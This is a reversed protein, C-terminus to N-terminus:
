KIRFSTLLDRCKQSVDHIELQIDGGCMMIYGTDDDEVAAIAVGFGISPVKLTTLSGVRDSIKVEGMQEIKSNKIFDRAVYGAISAFQGKKDEDRWPITLLKFRILDRGVKLDSEAHFVTRLESSDRDVPTSMKWKAPVTISWKQHSVATTHSSHIVIESKPTEVLPGFEACGILATLALAAIKKM